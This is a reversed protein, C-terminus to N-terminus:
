GGAAGPGTPPPGPNIAGAMMAQGYKVLISGAEYTSIADLHVNSYMLWQDGTDKITFIASADVGLEIVYLPNHKDTGESLQGPQPDEATM